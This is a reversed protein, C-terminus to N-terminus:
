IAFKLALDSVEAEKVGLYAVTHALSTHGLMQRCVEPNRTERYVFVAKTRRLSHGSYRRPDAHVLRAWGKIIKRLFVESLAAGHADGAATFLRDDEWKGESAILRAVAERTAPTLTIQVPTGTKQQVVTFRERIGGHHDRVDRVRLSLLDGCRLMSDVGVNLLALDRGAGRATLVGRILGLQERAFPEMKGRAEPKAKGKKPACESVTVKTSM